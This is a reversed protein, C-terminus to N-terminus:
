NNEMGFGMFAFTFVIMGMLTLAGGIMRLGRTKLGHKYSDSFSEFEQVGAANTREFDMKKAQIFLYIGAVWAAFSGAMVILWM